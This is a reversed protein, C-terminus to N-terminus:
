NSQFVIREWEPNRKIFAAVYPCQAIVKLSTQEISELSKITLAKAIGQGELAKPVEIHTLYIRDTRKVYELRSVQDDIHLEFQKKETNDKFDGQVM